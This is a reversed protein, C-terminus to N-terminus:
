VRDLEERSGFLGWPRVVLMALLVIFPVVESLLPDIRYECGPDVLHRSSCREAHELHETREEVCARESRLAREPDDVFPPGFADDQGVSRECDKPSADGVQRWRRKGHEIDGGDDTRREVILQDLM